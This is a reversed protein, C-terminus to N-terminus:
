GVEPTADRKEKVRAHIEALSPLVGLFALTGGDVLIEDEARVQFTGYPGAELIV